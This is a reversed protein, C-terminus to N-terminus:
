LGVFVLLAFNLTPVPFAPTAWEVRKQEFAAEGEVVSHQISVASHQVSTM